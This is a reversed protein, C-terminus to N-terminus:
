PWFRDDIADRHSSTFVVDTRLRQLFNASASILIERDDIRFRIDCNARAPSTKPGSVLLIGSAGPGGCSMPSSKELAIAPSNRLFGAYRFRPMLKKATKLDGRPLICPIAASFRRLPFHSVAHHVLRAGGGRQLRDAASDLALRIAESTDPV